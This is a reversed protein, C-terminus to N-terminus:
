KREGLATEACHCGSRGCLRQSVRRARAPDSGYRLADLEAETAVRITTTTAHFSNTLTITM